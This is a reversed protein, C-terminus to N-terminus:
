KIKQLQKIFAAPGGVEYGAEGRKSGSPSLVVVTPFAEIDYKHQLIDNQKVVAPSQPKDHPFDVEMLVYRKAAYDKWAKQSFVEADLKMCYPCWDSGSFSLLLEKNEAKAKAKAEKLDTLWGERAQALSGLALLVFLPFFKM